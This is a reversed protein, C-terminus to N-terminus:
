NGVGISVMNSTQCFFTTFIFPPWPEGKHRCREVSSASSSHSLSADTCKELWFSFRSHNDDRRGRKENEELQCNDSFLSNSCPMPVHMTYYSGLRLTWQRQIGHLSLFYLTFPGENSCKWSNGKKHCSGKKDKSMLPSFQRQNKSSCLITQTNIGNDIDLLWHVFNRSIRLFSLSKYNSFRRFHPLFYSYCFLLLPLHVVKQAKIWNRQPSLYNKFSVTKGM